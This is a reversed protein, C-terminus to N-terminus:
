TAYECETVPCNKCFPNKKPNWTGSSHAAAIKSVNGAWKDMLSGFDKRDYDRRVIQNSKIFVLGGKVSEVDPFKSFVALSTVELQTPDAYNANKGTKWDALRAVHGNITLLDPVARLWVDPDFFGCPTAQATIGLKEEIIKKGNFSAFKAILPGYQKYQPPLAVGYLLYEEFAKHIAKGEEMAPTSKQKVRKLVKMEHYKRPCTDFEKYASYSWVIKHEKM